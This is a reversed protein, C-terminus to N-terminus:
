VWKVVDGQRGSDPMGFSVDLPVSVANYLVLVMIGVEWVRRGRTHPLFIPLSKDLWGLAAM